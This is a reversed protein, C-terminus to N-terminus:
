APVFQPMTRTRTKVHQLRQQGRRRRRMHTRSEAVRQTISETCLQLSVPTQSLSSATGPERDRENAQVLAIVRRCTLQMDALKRVIRCSPLGQVLVLSYRLARVALMVSHMTWCQSMTQRSPIPHTTPALAAPRRWRGPQQAVLVAACLCLASALHRKAGITQLQLACHKLCNVQVSM